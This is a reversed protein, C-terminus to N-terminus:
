KNPPLQIKGANKEKLSSVPEALSQMTIELLQGKVNGGDLNPISVNDRAPGLHEVLFEDESILASDDLKKRKPEPEELLPPHAEKLAPPFPM